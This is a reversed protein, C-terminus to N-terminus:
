YYPQLDTRELGRMRTELEFLNQSTALYAEFEARRRRELWDDIRAFLSRKTSPRPTFNTRM